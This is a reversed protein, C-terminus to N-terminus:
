SGPSCAKVDKVDRVEDRMGGFSAAKWTYEEWLFSYDENYHNNWKVEFSPIVLDSDGLLDGAAYDYHGAFMGLGAGPITSNALYIGCLSPPTPTPPTPPPSSSSSSSSSSSLDHPAEMAATETETEAATQLARNTTTPVVLFMVFAAAWRSRQHQLTVVAKCSPMTKSSKSEEVERM